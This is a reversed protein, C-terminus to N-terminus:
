SHLLIPVNGFLRCLSQYYKRRHSNQEVNHNVPYIGSSWAVTFFVMCVGLSDLWDYHHVNSGRCSSTIDFFSPMLRWAFRLYHLFAKQLAYPLNHFYHQLHLIDEYMHQVRKRLVYFPWPLPCLVCDLLDRANQMFNRWSKPNHSSVSSM